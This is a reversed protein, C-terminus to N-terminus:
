GSNKTWPRNRRAQSAKADLDLVSERCGGRLRQDIKERLLDADEGTLSGSLVLTARRGETRVEIGGAAEAV